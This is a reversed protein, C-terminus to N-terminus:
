YAAPSLHPPRGAQMSGHKGLGLWVLIFEVVNPLMVLVTEASGIELREIANAVRNSERDVEAFSLTREDSIIFTADPAAAARSALVKGITQDVRLDLQPM